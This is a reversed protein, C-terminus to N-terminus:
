AGSTSLKPTKPKQDKSTSDISPDDIGTTAIPPHIQLNFSLWLSVEHYFFVGGIQRKTVVLNKMIISSSKRKQYPASGM